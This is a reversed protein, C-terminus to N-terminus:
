SEEEGTWQVKSDLASAVHKIYQQAFEEFSSIEIAQIQKMILRGDTILYVGM